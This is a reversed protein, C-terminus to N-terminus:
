GFCVVQDAHPQNSGDPSGYVKQAGVRDFNTFVWEANNTPMGPCIYHMVSKHDYSSTLLVTNSLSEQGYYQACSSPAGARIHEHRFGLVHGLEHRFIGVRGYPNARTDFFGNYIYVHRKEPPDPPFFALALLNGPQPDRVVDFLPATTGPPVGKDCKAMHRFRVHCVAEWERAAQKIAAVVQQYETENGGFSAHNVCYTLAKGKRWRVMRGNVGMGVLGRQENEAPDQEEIEATEALRLAYDTLEEESFRLDSEVIWYPEGEIEIKPCERKLRALIKNPDTADNM